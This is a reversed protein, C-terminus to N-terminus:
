WLNSAIDYCGLTRQERRYVDEEFVPARLIFSDAPDMDEEASGATEKLVIIEPHM